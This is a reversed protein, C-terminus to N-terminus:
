IYYSSLLLSLSPKYRRKKIVVVLNLHFNSM